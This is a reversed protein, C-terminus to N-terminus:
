SPSNRVRETEIGQEDLEIVIKMGVRSREFRRM